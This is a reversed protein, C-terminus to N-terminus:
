PGWVMIASAVTSGDFREHASQIAVSRGPLLRAVTAPGEIREVVATSPTLHVVHHEGDLTTVNIADKEFTAVIGSVAMPAGARLRGPDAAPLYIWGYSVVLLGVVSLLLAHGVIALVRECRAKTM